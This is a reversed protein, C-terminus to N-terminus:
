VQYWIHVSVQDFASPLPTSAAILAASASRTARATTGESPARWARARIGGVREGLRWGTRGSGRLPRGGVRGSVWATPPLATMFRMAM